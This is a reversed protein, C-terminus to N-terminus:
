EVTIVDTAVASSTAVSAGNAIWWTVAGAVAVAVILRIWGGRSVAVPSTAREYGTIMTGILNRRKVVLYFAIALVHLAILALLVNFSVEHIGAATRGQDFSVLYSLPGSEIGDLDVTFLGSAVQTVLALLLAVVSWGGLPNHGLTVPQQGRVYSWVGRPGKVFQRFRATTTGFLGWLLRFVLLACITLGSKYHWDMHFNEASWWSFGILGVLLWHFLRTPGDWVYQRLSKRTTVAPDTGEAPPEV